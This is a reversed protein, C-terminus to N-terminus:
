IIKLYERYVKFFFFFWAVYLEQQKRDHDTETRSVWTQAHKETDYSDFLM